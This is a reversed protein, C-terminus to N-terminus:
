METTAETFSKNIVKMHFLLRQGSHVRLMFLLYSLILNFLVRFKNYFTQFQLAEFIYLM